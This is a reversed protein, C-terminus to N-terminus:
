IYGITYYILKRSLSSQTYALVTLALSVLAFLIGTILMDVNEKTETLPMYYYDFILSLVLTLTIGTTQIRPSNYLIVLIFAILLDKIAMLPRHHRQYFHDTKNDENFTSTPTTSLDKTNEQVRNKTMKITQLLFKSNQLSSKGSLIVEHISDNPDQLDIRQDFRLKTCLDKSERALIEERKLYDNYTKRITVFQYATTVINLVVFIISIVINLLFFSLLNNELNRMKEISLFTSILIELRIAELFEVWFVVDMKEEVFSRLNGIKFYNGLFPAVLYFLLVALVVTFYSGQHQLIYCTVDEEEFKAKDISCLADHLSQFPNPVREFLELRLNELFAHLNSPHEVNLFVLFDIMQFCKILEFVSNYSTFVSLLLLFFSFYSISQSVTQVAKVEDEQRYHNIPNVNIKNVLLIDLPNIKSRILGKKDIEVLLVGNQINEEIRFYIKVFKSNQEVVVRKLQTKVEYAPNEEPRLQLKINSTSLSSEIQTNFKLRVRSPADIYVKEVLELSSGVENQDTKVPSASPPPLSPASVTPQTSQSLPPPPTPRPVIKSCTQNDQNLEYGSM